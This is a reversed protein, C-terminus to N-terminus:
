RVRVIRRWADSLRHLTDRCRHCKDRRDMNRLHEGINYICIALVISFVGVAIGDSM